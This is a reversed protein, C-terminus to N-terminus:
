PLEPLPDIHSGNVRLEFHLHPPELAEAVIEYGEAVTAQQASAVSACLMSLLSILTLSLIKINKM